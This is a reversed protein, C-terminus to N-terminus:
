ALRDLQWAIRLADQIRKITVFADKLQRRTLRSLGTLKVSNDIVGGADLQAVQHRLRLEFLFPFIEALAAADEASLMAGTSKAVALRELTSRERSGATLAAARALGVIPAISGRKLPGYLFTTRGSTPCKGCRSRSASTVRKIMSQNM